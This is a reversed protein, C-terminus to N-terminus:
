FQYSMRVDQIQEVAFELLESLKLVQLPSRQLLERLRGGLDQSYMAVASGLSDPDFRAMLPGILIRETEEEVIRHQRLLEEVSNVGM